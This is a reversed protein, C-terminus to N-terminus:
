DPTPLTAVPAPPPAGDAAGEATAAELAAPQCWAELLEAVDDKRLPKLTKIVESLPTESSLYRVLVPAVSRNAALRERRQRIRRLRIFVVAALVTILAVFQVSIVRVFLRYLPDTLLLDITNV